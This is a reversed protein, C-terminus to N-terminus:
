TISYAIKIIEEETIEGKIQLLLGRLQWNLTNLGNKSMFLMAPSGNVMLDKVVTDDTDYLSGRSTGNASNQQNFLIVQDKINYEISIQYVDAGLSTLTVRRINTESPLYSPTALKFPISTQAQELTVEKEVNTGLNQIKPMDPDNGPKYTEIKNVTTKGVIYDFFEGIKGGLANANHPYLFNISGISILIAAAVVIRKRNLFVKQKTPISETELIHQKIKQWQDDINPVEIDANLEKSLQSEIIRELEKESLAM